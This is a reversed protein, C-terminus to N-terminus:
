LIDVLTAVTPLFVHDIAQIDSDSGKPIGIGAIHFYEETNNQGYFVNANDSEVVNWEIDDNKKRRIFTIPDDVQTGYLLGVVDAMGRQATPSQKFLKIFEKTNGICFLSDIGKEEREKPAIEVTEISIWYSEVKATHDCAEMYHHAVIKSISECIKRGERLVHRVEESNLECKGRNNINVWIKSHRKHNQQLPKICPNIRINCQLEISIKPSKIKLTTYDLYPGYKGEKPTVKPHDTFESNAVSTLEDIKESLAERIKILRDDTNERRVDLWDSLKCFRLKFGSYLNDKKETHNRKQLKSILNM